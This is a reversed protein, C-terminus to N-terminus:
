SSAMEDYLTAIMGLIKEASAGEELVRRKIPKGYPDHRNVAAIMVVYSDDDRRVLVLQKESRGVEGGNKVWAAEGPEAEKLVDFGQRALERAVKSPLASRAGIVAAEEADPWDEVLVPKLVLPKESEKAPSKNYLNNGLEGWLQLFKDRNSHWPNVLSRMDGMFAKYFTSMPKNKKATEKRRKGNISAYEEDVEDDYEDANGFRDGAIMDMLDFLGSLILVRENRGLEPIEIDDLTEEDEHLSHVYGQLLSSIFKQVMPDTMFRQKAEVSMTDDEDYSAM